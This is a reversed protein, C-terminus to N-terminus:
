TLDIIGQVYKKFVEGKNLNLEASYIYVRFKAIEKTTFIELQADTLFLMSTYKYGADLSIFDCEVEEDPLQLVSEDEFIFYLGDASYNASSGYATAEIVISWSGYTASYFKHVQLTQRDLWSTVKPSSILIDGTFEDEYHTYDGVREPMDEKSCGCFMSVFLLLCIIVKKM